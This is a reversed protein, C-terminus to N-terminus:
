YDRERLASSLRYFISKHISIPKFSEDLNIATESGGLFLYGDPKLYQGIKTLVTKRTDTNFYILVNRLFIVDMRPLPTWAHILNIQRFEVKQRLSDKIQWANGYQYFYTQRLEDSLGRQIEIQNYWGQRAYTLARNSFDSAILHLTWSALQPFQQDLLMAISYPEQGTSCAACWITLSKEQSRRQILDPLVKTRLAEFPHADRFFSTEYTVLTEVVRTHLHDVPRAKLEAVLSAVSDFGAAAAIAPLRLDALYSKDAGLAVSSQQYVLQRLYEFENATIGM